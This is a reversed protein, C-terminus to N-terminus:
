FRKEVRARLAKQATLIRPQINKFKEELAEKKAHLVKAAELTKNEISSSYVEECARCDDFTRNFDELATAYEKVESPFDAGSFHRAEEWAQMEFNMSIFQRQDIVYFREMNTNVENLLELLFNRKRGHKFIPRFLATFM